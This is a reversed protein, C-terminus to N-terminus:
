AAERIAGMQWNESGFRIREKANHSTADREILSLRARESIPWLGACIPGADCLGEGIVIPAWGIRDYVRLMRRAFVGVYFQVGFRLGIELSALMITRSTSNGANPALCFRTCEWIFPSKLAAGDTLSKFHDNIMTDGTTPLFRMSGQHCGDEGELILYLPNILDYCDIEQGYEDVDLNWKLRDCFQLARHQYMSRFLKPYAPAEDAYVANIM